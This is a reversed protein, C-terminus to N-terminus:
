VQDDNSPTAFKRESDYWHYWRAILSALIKRATLVCIESNASSAGSIPRPGTRRSFLSGPPVGPEYTM